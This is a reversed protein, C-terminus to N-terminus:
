KSMKDKVHVSHADTNLMCISFSLIFATDASAFASPNQDCYHAAFM